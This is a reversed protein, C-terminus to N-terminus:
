KYTGGKRESICAPVRSDGWDGYFFDWRQIPVLYHAARIGRGDGPRVFHGSRPPPWQTRTLILRDPGQDDHTGLTILAEKARASSDSSTPTLVSVIAKVAPDARALRGPVM